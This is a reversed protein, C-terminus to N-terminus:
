KRDMEGIAKSVDIPSHFDQAPLDKLAEVVEEEAGQQQAHKILDRKKAPYHMGKLSKEVVVPSVHAMNIRRKISRKEKEEVGEKVEGILCSEAGEM